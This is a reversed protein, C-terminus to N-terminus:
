PCLCRWLRRRRTQLAPYLTRRQVLTMMTMMTATATTVAATAVAAGARARRSNQLNVPSSTGRLISLRGAPASENHQKEATKREFNRKKKLKIGQPMTTDRPADTAADRACWNKNQDQQRQAVKICAHRV